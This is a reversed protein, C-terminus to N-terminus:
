YLSANCYRILRVLDEKKRVSISEIDAFEELAKRDCPMDALLRKLNTIRTLLGGTKQYFYMDPMPTYRAPTAKSELAQPPRGERYAIRHRVLLMVAGSDLMEYFGWSQGGDEANVVLRRDGMDVRVIEPMPDLLYMQNRQRFEIVDAHANYRMEIDPFIRKATIVTGKTFEENLYPSGEVPKESDEGLVGKVTQILLHDHINAGTGAGPGRTPDEQAMLMNAVAIAAILLIYRKFM